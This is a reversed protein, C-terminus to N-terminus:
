KLGLLMEEGDANVRVQIANLIEFMFAELHPQLGAGDVKLLADGKSLKRTKEKIYDVEAQTLKKQMEFAEQRLKNENRIQKNLEIQTSRGADDYGGFLSEVLGTSDGFTKSLSAALAEVKKANAEVEAIDLSVVAEIKKIRENSSLKEMEIRFNETEKLVRQTKDAATDLSSNSRVIGGTWSNVKGTAEDYGLALTKNNEALRRTTEGVEGLAGGSKEVRGSLNEVADTATRQSGTFSEMTSNLALQKNANSVLESARRNLADTDLEASEKTNDLSEALRDNLQKLEGTAQAMKQEEETLPKLMAEIKAIEDANFQEYLWGGITGGFAKEMPEIIAFNILEGIGYGVGFGVLSTGILGFKGASAATTKLYDLNGTLAKLGQAGALATLGTGISSLGGGLATLAPLVVDIAKALGLLEGVSRKTSDDLDEFESIGKGIAEFLPELGDIIGASVQVLATFADVVRQLATELGDVTNLDINGFVATLAGELQEGLDGFAGLLSSLDLNALAEPFNKAILQLKTDIDQALGEMAGLIPAFAGDDLRIENGLSNFVSTLSKVINRTEDTLNGGVSILASNLNNQLIQGLNGLTDTLERSAIEAAGANTKFAGLNEAFKESANGTLALVPALAEVSGFLKAIIETNGGTAQAVDDLVGAFGKSELAAANFEIGLESAIDSAEKSPKLLSTIAARIGTIAEATSTGTEATITAIAAAMEDFGLGAASAIPALRGIASSLEPITTQGLKVATFFTDAFAGAQDTSAGFANMTSVLATTTTGLDAKGAISLREAASILELSDKYDVGASIAGYTASTIQELSATSRESYELIQAQFDRLNDAPQGILTSIEGFATDFDDAIKVAYGTVALGAAALALDLKLISDTVSALPGTISGVRGELSSLGKGVSSIAGGTNDLGGFIIQITKSTTAM